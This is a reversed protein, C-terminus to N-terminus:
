SIRIDESSGICIIAFQKKSYRFYDVFLVVCGTLMSDTLFCWSRLLM